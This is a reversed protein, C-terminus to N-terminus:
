VTLPVTTSASEFNGNIPERTLIPEFSTDVLFSPEKLIFLTGIPLFEIDM